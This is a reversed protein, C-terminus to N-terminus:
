KPAGWEVSVVDITYVSGDPLDTESPPAIAPEAEAVPDAHLIGLTKHLHDLAYGLQDTSLDVAAVLGRSGHAFFDPNKFELLADLDFVEAIGADRLSLAFADRIGATVTQAAASVRQGFMLGDNPLGRPEAGQVAEYVAQLVADNSAEFGKLAAALADLAKQVARADEARAASLTVAQNRAAIWGERRSAKDDIDDLRMAEHMAENLRDLRDSLPRVAAAADDLAKHAKDNTPDTSVAQVAAGRANIALNYAHQAQAIASKLVISRRM